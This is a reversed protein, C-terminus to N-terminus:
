APHEQWRFIGAGGGGKGNGAPSFGVDEAHQLLRSISEETYPPMPFAIRWHILSGAPLAEHLCEGVAEGRRNIPRRVVEITAGELECGLYSIAIRDISAETFAPDASLGSKRYAKTFM